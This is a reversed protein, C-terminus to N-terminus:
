ASTTSNLQPFGGFRKFNGLARCRGITFNCATASGAYGCNRGKFGGVGTKGQFRCTMDQVFKLGRQSYLDLATKCDFEVEDAVSMSAIQGKFIVYAAGAIINRSADFFAKYATIFYGSPDNALAWNVMANDLNDISVKYTNAQFDKTLKVGSYSIGKPLWTHGNWSVAQDSDCFYLTPSGGIEYLRVPWTQNSALATAVAPDIAFM